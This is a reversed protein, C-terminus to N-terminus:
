TNAKATGSTSHPKAHFFRKDDLMVGALDDIADMVEDAAAYLLGGVKSGTSIAVMADRCARLAIVAKEQIERSPQSSRGKYRM